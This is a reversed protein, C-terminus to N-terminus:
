DTSQKSKSVIKKQLQKKSKMELTTSIMDCLKKNFFYSLGINQKVM